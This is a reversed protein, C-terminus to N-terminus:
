QLRAVVNCISQSSSCPHLRNNPSPLKTRGHISLEENGLCYGIRSTSDGVAGRVEEKHDGELPRKRPTEKVLLYKTLPSQM